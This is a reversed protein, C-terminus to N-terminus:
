CGAETFVCMEPTILGVTDLQGGVADELTEATYEGGWSLALVGNGVRVVTYLAGGPPGDYTYGFTVADYGTDAEFTRWVRDESTGELRDRDCSALQERLLEIEDIADQATPFALLTRGDYGEPESVSYGLRDTGRPQYSLIGNGVGCLNEPNVGAVDPGPGAIETDPGRSPPEGPYSALPFGDPIATAGTGEDPRDTSSTETASPATESATAPPADGGPLLLEAAAPIMREVPTGDMFNYDMGVVVSTIVSLRDGTVVLGTEMFYGFEGSPEVEEPVPRHMTLYVEAEGDVGPDVTTPGSLSFTEEGPYIGQCGVVQHAVADYAERAAAEDDFEAITETMWNDPAARGDPGRMGFARQLVASAGLSSLPAEVCPSFRTIEDDELTDTAHWDAGDPEDPATYETEADTMLDAASLTTRDAPDVTEAKGGGGALAFVPVAVAAVALASGGAVLVHTRRRIRDGRERIEEAPLMPGGQASTGLGSLREIPDSM